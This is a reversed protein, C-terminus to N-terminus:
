SVRGHQARTAGKGLNLASQQVHTPPRSGELGVTAPEFGAPPAVSEFSARVRGVLASIGLVPNIRSCRVLTTHGGPLAFGGSQQRM